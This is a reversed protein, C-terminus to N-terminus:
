TLAKAGDTVCKYCVAAETVAQCLFVSFGM